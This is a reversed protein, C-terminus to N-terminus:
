PHPMQVRISRRVTESVSEFAGCMGTRAVRTELDGAYLRVGARSESHVPPKEPEM